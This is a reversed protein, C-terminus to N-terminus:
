GNSTIIKNQAYSETAMVSWASLCIIFINLKMIMLFRLWFTILNSKKLKSKKM